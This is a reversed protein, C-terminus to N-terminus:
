SVGARSLFDALVKDSDFYARRAGPRGPLPRMTPASGSRERSRRRSRGSPSWGKASRITAPQLGHGPRAGAQRHSTDCPATASGAAAPRSTSARRSRSSPAPGRCTAASRTPIASRRRSRRHALRSQCGARDKHDGPPHRPRDRVRAPGRQPLEVIQPVRAGEPRVDPREDGRVSPGRWSAVTTFRGGRAGDTVVPWDDLVVPQRTPRWDIGGTPIPCGPTGINEGVTFYLDHGTSGHGANGAAHWFQTFGPDLDVYAKRRFRRDPGRPRPPRQHQGAPRRGRCARPEACSM